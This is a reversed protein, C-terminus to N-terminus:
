GRPATCTLSPALAGRFPHQSIAHDRPQCVSPALDGALANGNSGARVRLDAVAILANVAVTTLLLAGIVAASRMTKSSALTHNTLGLVHISTGLM